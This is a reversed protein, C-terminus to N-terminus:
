YAEDHDCKNRSGKPRELIVHLDGSDPGTIRRALEMTLPQM